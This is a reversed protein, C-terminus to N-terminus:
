SKVFIENMKNWPLAYIKDCIKMIHPTQCVIFGKTAQKYEDLFIQLHKADQQTPLSTSKVEIPIYRGEVEIVWDVELGTTDRWYRIAFRREALRSMRILELGIYQEFLHSMDMRSLKRGERAALRRVGLDYLLYKQTKLLKRRTKTQTIPEIREAVLCDEL